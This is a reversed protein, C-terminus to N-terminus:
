ESYKNKCKRCSVGIGYIKEFENTVFCSDEKTQSLDMRAAFGDNREQTFLLWTALAMAESQMKRMQRNEDKLLENSNILFFLSM